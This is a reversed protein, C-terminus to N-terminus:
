RWCLELAQTETFGERVLMLYKHRYLKSQLEIHEFLAPLQRTMNDLVGKLPDRPPLNVVTPSDESM